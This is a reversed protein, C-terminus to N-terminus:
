GLHKTFESNMEIIKINHEVHAQETVEFMLALMEIHVFGKKHGRQLLLLFLRLSRFVLHRVLNINLSLYATKLSARISHVDRM